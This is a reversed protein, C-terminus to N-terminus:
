PRRWTDTFQTGSHSLASSVAALNVGDYENIKTITWQPNTAFSGRQGARDTVAISHFTVNHYDALPSMGASWIGAIVEATSRNCSGQGFTFAGCAYSLSFSHAQTSDALAFHYAGAGYSVAATVADGPAPDIGQVEYKGNMELYAVYTGVTGTCLERVGVRESNSSGPGFGAWFYSDPDGQPGTGTCTIAPVTWAAAVRAFTQGTAQYGAWAHSQVTSSTAPATAAMASSVPLATLALAVAGALTIARMGRRAAAAFGFRYCATAPSTVPSHVSM